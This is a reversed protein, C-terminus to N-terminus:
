LQDVSLLVKCTHPRFAPTCCLSLAVIPASRPVRSLGKNLQPLCTSALPDHQCRQDALDLTPALWSGSLEGVLLLPEVATVEAGRAATSSSSSRLCTTCCTDERPRAQCGAKPRM